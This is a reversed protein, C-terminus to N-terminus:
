KKKQHEKLDVFTGFLKDFNILPVGYNCEFIAHHLYHYDSGGFPEDHGDHGGIPAIDAHFKCYLFQIPHMPIFLPLLTVTYYLFHEVPHMSLGSWPGPNYSKHHYSHVYKYLINGLDWSPKDKTWPHMM